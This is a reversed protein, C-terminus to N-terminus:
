TLAAQISFYLANLRADLLGLDISEGISYFAVRSASYAIATGSDNTALVFINQSGPTLSSVSFDYNTGFVRGRVATSSSRRVGFIGAPILVSSQVTNSGSTIRNNFYYTGSAHFLGINKVTANASGMVVYTTPITSTVLTSCFVAGHFSNQPDANAARNTNIYKTSGNGLLGLTRSYDGSVFNVNTPASGVLPTLAGSLTRAGCLICAAKIPTWVGDTKCGVVFESIAQRVGFELRNGDAAEVAAIYTEADADFQYDRGSSALLGASSVRRANLLRTVSM